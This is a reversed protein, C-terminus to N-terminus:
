GYLNQFCAPCGVYRMNWIQLIPIWSTDRSILSTSAVFHGYKFTFTKHGEVEHLFLDFGCMKIYEHEEPTAAFVSVMQLPVQGDVLIFYPWPKSNRGLIVDRAQQLEELTAAPNDALCLVALLEVGIKLLMRCIDYNSADHLPLLVKAVRDASWAIPIQDWDAEVSVVNPPAQPESFWSVGHLRAKAPKRKKTFVGLRCREIGLISESLVRSEFESCINNCADCVWGPALVVFDNGL